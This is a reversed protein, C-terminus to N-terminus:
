GMGLGLMSYISLQDLMITWQLQLWIRINSLPSPAYSTLNVILSCRDMLQQLQGFLSQSGRVGESSSFQESPTNFSATVIAIDDEGIGLGAVTM